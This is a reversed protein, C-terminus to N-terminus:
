VSKERIIIMEGELKASFAKLDKKAPGRKVKGNLDFQAKHCPCTLITGEPLSVECGLHTCKSSFAACETDSIRTVIIPKRADLPNPIKQAGGVVSLGSYAPDTLKLRIPTMPIPKGRAAAQTVVMPGIVAAALASTGAKGIFQRRTITEKGM